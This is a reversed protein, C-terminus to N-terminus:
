TRTTEKKKTFLKSSKKFEGFFVEGLVKLRDVDQQTGKQDQITEVLNRLDLIMNLLKSTSAEKTSNEEEVPPSYSFSVNQTTPSPTNTPSTDPSSSIYDVLYSPSKSILDGFISQNLLLSETGKPRYRM